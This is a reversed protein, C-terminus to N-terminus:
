RIFAKELNAITDLIRQKHDLILKKSEIAFPHFCGIETTENSLSIEGNIVEAEFFLAIVKVCNGDSYKMLFNSNSYVGVLRKM